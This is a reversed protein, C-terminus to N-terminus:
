CKWAKFNKYNITWNLIIGGKVNGKLVPQYRTYIEDVVDLLASIVRKLSKGNEHMSQVDVLYM